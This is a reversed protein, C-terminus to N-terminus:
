KNAQTMIALAAGPEHLLVECLMGFCGRADRRCRGHDFRLRLTFTMCCRAQVQREDPGGDDGEGDERVDDHVSEIKPM